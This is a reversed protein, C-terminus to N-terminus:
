GGSSGYAQGYPDAYGAQPQQGYGPYSGQQGYYASYDYGGGYPQAPAAAPYGGGANWPGGGYPDPAGGKFKFFFNLATLRDNRSTLM